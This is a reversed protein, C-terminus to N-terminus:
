PFTTKKCNTMATSCNGLNKYCNGKAPGQAIGHCDVTEGIENSENYDSFFSGLDNIAQINTGKLITRITSMPMPLAAGGEIKSTLIAALIQVSAQIRAHCLAKQTKDTPLLCSQRDDHAKFVGWLQQITTIQIWGLDIPANGDCAFVRKAFDCHTKWFGWTRTLGLPSHCIDSRQKIIPGIPCVLKDTLVATVKIKNNVDNAGDTPVNITLNQTFGPAVIFPEPLSSISNEDTTFSLNVDGTNKIAVDFTAPGGVPIPDVACSKTVTFNPHIVKVSASDNDTAHQGTGNVYNVDVTNILLNPDGAQVARNVTFSCQGSVPLTDCNNDIAKSTLDGLLTDKMSVLTLPSGGCNKVTITYTITKSPMAVNCNATKEVDVCPVCYCTANAQKVIDDLELCVQSDIDINSYVTITNNVDDIKACDAPKTITLHKTTSKAVM